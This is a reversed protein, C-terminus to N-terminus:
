SLLEFLKEWLEDSQSPLYPKLYDWDVELDTGIFESEITSDWYWKTPLIKKIALMCDSLVPPHWVIECDNFERYGDNNYICKDQENYDIDKSFIVSQKEKSIYWCPSWKIECWNTLDKRIAGLEDLRAFLKNYLEAQM